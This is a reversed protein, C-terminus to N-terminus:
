ISKSFLIGRDLLVTTLFCFLRTCSDVLLISSVRRYRIAYRGFCGFGILLFTLPHLFDFLHTSDAALASIYWLQNFSWFSSIQNFYCCTNFIVSHEFRCLTCSYEHNGLGFFFSNFIKFLKMWTLRRSWSLTCRGSIWPKLRIISTLLVFPM